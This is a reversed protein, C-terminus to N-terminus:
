HELAVLFKETIERVLAPLAAQLALAIAARV